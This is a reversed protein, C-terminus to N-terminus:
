VLLRGLADAQIACLEAFKKIKADTLGSSKRSNLSLAGFLSGDHRKLAYAITRWGLSFEDEMWSYGRKRAAHIEAKIRAKDTITSDTHAVPRLKKLFANLGHESLQGLLIRGAATCYAPFHVGVGLSPAMLQQPMTYAVVLVEEGDLVGALCSQGTLHSLHDCASQLVRSNGTTGLYATALRMIKPTLKFSRGDLEAYGLACLTHLIRRVSPKPLDTARAVDSLTPANRGKGLADIVRISRALVELFDRGQGSELRKRADEVRLRTM